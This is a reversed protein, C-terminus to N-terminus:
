KLHVNMGIWLIKRTEGHLPQLVSVNKNAVRKYEILYDVRAKM